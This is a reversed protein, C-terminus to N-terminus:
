VPQPQIRALARDDIPWNLAAAVVGLGVSCWWVLDYSGTRDFLLGGAWVGLFSGVQHSFFVAGGLMALYQTGFIQGVLGTTLPVTSLWLVGMAAAFILASTVSLPALVFILIAVARAGYIFSLLYKKRLRDGMAGFSLSGVINFLGVLALAWAGIKPDIGKDVLYAPLHTAIFAVHFGCVFYGGTLLWFGKHTMAELIAERASQSPGHHVPAKSSFPAALPIMVLSLLTLLLLANSWGYASLFAQGVPVVSFQGFSGAATGLGLLLTRKEAPAVRGIEALIVSFGVGSLGVGILTGTGLTFAYANSSAAMLWVGLVYLIAGAGVVFRAGIRDALMGAFPQAAGWMLNQLAIALAFTERGWGLDRTLPQQYLGFSQRIGVSLLLILCGAGVVLIPRYSKSASM